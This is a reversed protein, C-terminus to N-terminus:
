FRTEMEIKRLVPMTWAVKPDQSHHVIIQNLWLSAKSRMRVPIHLDQSKDELAAQRVLIGRSRLLGQSATADLVHSCSAAYDMRLLVQMMLWEAKDLTPNKWSFSTQLGAIARHCPICHCLSRSMSLPTMYDGIDTGPSRRWHLNLLNGPSISSEFYTLTM